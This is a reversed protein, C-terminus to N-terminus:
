GGFELNISCYDEGGQQIPQLNHVSSVLFCQIMEMDSTKPFEEVDAPMFFDWACFDELSCAWGFDDGDHALGLDSPCAANCVPRNVM